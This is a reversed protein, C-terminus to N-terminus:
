SVPRVRILRADFRLQTYILAFKRGIDDRESLPTQYVHM